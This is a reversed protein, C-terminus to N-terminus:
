ADFGNRYYEIIIFLIECSGSLLHLCINRYDEKWLLVCDENIKLSSMQEKLFIEKILHAKTDSQAEECSKCRNYVTWGEFREVSVWIQQSGANKWSISPSRELHLQRFLLICLNHKAGIIVRTCYFEQWSGYKVEAETM